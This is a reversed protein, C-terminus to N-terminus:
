ETSPDEADNYPDQLLDVDRIEISQAVIGQNYIQGAGVNLTICLIEDTNNEEDFFEGQFNEESYVTLAVGPPLEFSRIASRFPLTYDAKIRIDANVVNSYGNCANGSFVMAQKSQHPDFPRVLINSIADDIGVQVSYMGAGAYEVGEWMCKLTDSLTRHGRENYHWERAFTFGHYCFEGTVESGCKWSSFRNNMYNDWASDSYELNYGYYTQLGTEWHVYTCYDLYYGRFYSHEYLRCCHNEPRTFDQPGLGDNPDPPNPWILATNM